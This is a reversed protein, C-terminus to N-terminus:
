PCRNEGPREADSQEAQEAQGDHECEDRRRGALDLRTRLRGRVVLTRSRAEALDSRDLLPLEDVVRAPRPKELMSAPLLDGHNEHM